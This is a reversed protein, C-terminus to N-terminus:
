QTFPKWKSYSRDFLDVGGPGTRDLQFDNITQPTPPFPFSGLDGNGTLYISSGATPYIYFGGAASLSGSLSLSHANLYLAGGSLDLANDLAVDSALEVGQPNEIVLPVAAPHGDGIYQRASGEYIIRTGNGYTRNAGPVQINGGSGLQLAGNTDLSGLYLDVNSGTTFSGTGALVSEGLHLDINDAVVFAIDGNIDADVSQDTGNFELVSSNISSITGTSSIDGAVHLTGSGTGRQDSLAKM